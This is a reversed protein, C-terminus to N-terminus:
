EAKFSNTETSDVFCIYSRGTTVSLLNGNADKFCIAGISGNREWTIAEYGGATAYYGKGGASLNYKNRGSDDVTVPAKLVFVNQYADKEETLPAGNMGRLYAKEDADYYFETTASDSFKATVKNAPDLIAPRNEAFMLLPPTDASMTYGRDSVAAALKEADTYLKNGDSGDNEVTKSYKSNVVFNLYEINYDSIMNQGYEDAGNAVLKWNFALAIDALVWRASTVPGIDIGAPASKYVALLATNGNETEAEFVIDAKSLGSQVNKADADNKIVVGVPMKVLDAEKLNTLGTLYNLFLKEPEEKPLFANPDFDTSAVGKGGDLEGASPSGQEECASLSFAMIICIVISFYKLVRM